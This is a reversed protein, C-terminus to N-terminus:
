KKTVAKKKKDSEAKRKDSEEKVKEGTFVVDLNPGVRFASASTQAFQLATDLDVIAPERRGDRFVERVETKQDSSVTLLCGERLFLETPAFFAVLALGLIYRQLSQTEVATAGALSRL